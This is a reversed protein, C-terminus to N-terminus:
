VLERHRRGPRSAPQRAPERLYREIRALDFDYLVTGHHLLARRARRQASGSVKRGGLALDSRAEFEVGLARALPELILRYSPGVNQLEPRRELSLVLAFCLCGPGVVVAGGGSRRRLVALGDRNCLALDPDREAEGSRGLVAAYGSSEWFRLTEIPREARELSDLLRAEAALNEDPAPCTEDLIRVTTRYGFHGEPTAAAEEHSDCHEDDHRIA